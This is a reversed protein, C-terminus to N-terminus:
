TSGRMSPFTGAPQLAEGCTLAWFHVFNSRYSKMYQLIVKGVETKVGPMRCITPEQVFRVEKHHNVSRNLPELVQKLNIFDVYAQKDM